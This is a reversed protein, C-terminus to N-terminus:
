LTEMYLAYAILAKGDCVKETVCELPVLTVETHEGEEAVGAQRGNLDEIFSPEVEREVMLVKVRESLIGQSLPVTGLNVTLDRIEHRHIELGLEEGSERIFTDEPTDSDMRGAPVELSEFEGIAIQSQKVCVVHKEHEGSVSLVIFMIVTNSGLEVIRPFNKGKEWVSLRIFMVDNAENDGKFDVQDLRINELKFQPDLGEYWNLFYPSDLARNLNGIDVAKGRTVKICLRALKEAVHM